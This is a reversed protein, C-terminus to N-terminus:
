KCAMQSIEIMRDSYDLKSEQWKHAVLPWVHACIAALTWISETQIIVIQCYKLIM